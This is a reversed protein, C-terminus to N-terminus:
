LGSALKMQHSLNDFCASHLFKFEAFKGYYATLGLQAALHRISFERRCHPKNYQLDSIASYPVVAVLDNACANCGNHSELKYRRPCSISKQDIMRITAKMVPMIPQVLLIKVLPTQHNQSHRSPLSILQPLSTANVKATGNAQSKAM